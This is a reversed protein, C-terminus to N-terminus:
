REPLARKQALLGCTQYMSGIKKKTEQDPSIHLSVLFDFKEGQDFGFIFEGGGYIERIVSAVDHTSSKIHIFEHTPNKSNANTM